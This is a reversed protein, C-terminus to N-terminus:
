QYAGPPSPLAKYEPKATIIQEILRALESLGVAREGRPLWRLTWQVSKTGAKTQVEFRYTPEMGVPPFPDTEPSGKPAFVAPYSFFDIEDIKRAIRAMEEDTLRLPVTVPPDCPGMDATFTGRGTDLVNKGGHLGYAFTLSVITPQSPTPSATGAEGASASCGVLGLALLATGLTLGGRKMVSGEM